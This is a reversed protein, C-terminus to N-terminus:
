KKACHLAKSERMELQEQRLRTAEAPDMGPKLDTREFIYRWGEQHDHSSQYEQFRKVTTEANRLGKIVQVVGASQYTRVNYCIIAYSAGSEDGTLLSETELSGLCVSCNRALRGSQAATM